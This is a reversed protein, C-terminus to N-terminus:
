NLWSAQALGVACAGPFIPLSAELMKAAIAESQFM